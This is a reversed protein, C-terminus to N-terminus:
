RAIFIRPYLHVRSRRTTRSADRSKPAAYHTKLIAPYIRPLLPIDRIAAFHLDFESSYKLFSAVNEFHYSPTSFFVWPKEASKKCEIILETITHQPLPDGKDSFTEYFEILDIERLQGAYEYRVSPLRGTNKTSCVNLVEVELPFGSKRIDNEIKQLLEASAPPEPASM